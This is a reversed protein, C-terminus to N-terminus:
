MYCASMEVHQEIGENSTFLTHSVTSTRTICDAQKQVDKLSTCLISHSMLGDTGPQMILLAMVLYGPIVVPLNYSEIVYVYTCVYNIVYVVSYKSVTMHLASMNRSIPM